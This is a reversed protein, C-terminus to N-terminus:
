SLALVQRRPLGPLMGLLRRPAISPLQSPPMVLNMAAQLSPQRAVIFRTIGSAPRSLLGAPSRVDPETFGAWTVPTQDLADPMLRGASKADCTRSSERSHAIFLLFAGRLRPPFARATHLRHLAAWAPDSATSQASRS